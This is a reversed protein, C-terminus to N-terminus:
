GTFKDLKQTTFGESLQHKKIVVKYFGEGKYYHYWTGRMKKPITKITKSKIAAHATTTGGLNLLSIGTVITVLVMLALAAHKMQKTM